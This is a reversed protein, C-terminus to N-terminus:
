TNFTCITWTCDFSCWCYSSNWITSCHSFHLSNMKLFRYYQELGEDLQSKVLSLIALVILLVNPGSTAVGISEVEILTLVGVWAEWFTENIPKSSFRLKSGTVGFAFTTTLELVPVTTIPPSTLIDGAATACPLRETFIWSSVLNSDSPVPVTTPCDAVTDSCSCCGCLICLDINIFLWSSSKYKIWTNLKM